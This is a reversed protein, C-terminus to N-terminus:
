MNVRRRASMTTTTRTATISTVPRRSSMLKKVNLGNLQLRAPEDSGKFCSIAHSTRPTAPPLAKETRVVRTKRTSTFTATQPKLNLPKDKNKTHELQNILKELPGCVRDKEARIYIETRKEHDAFCALERKHKDEMNMHAQKMAAIAKEEASATELQQQKDAFVKVKKAETFNKSLALNKQQKRLHLLYASPKNFQILYNPDGWNAEFEEKEQTQKALLAQKDTDQDARFVKMIKRWRIKEKSLTKRAQKLREDITKTEEDKKQQHIESEYAGSLFNSAEDLRAARDYDQAVMAELADSKLRQLVKGRLQSPPLIKRDVLLMEARHIMDTEDEESDFTLPRISSENDDQDCIKITNDEPVCRSSEPTTIQQLNEKADPETLSAAISTTSSVDDMTKRYPSSETTTCQPHNNVQIGDMTRCLAFLLKKSFETRKNMSFTKFLHFIKRSMIMTKILRCSFGTNQSM